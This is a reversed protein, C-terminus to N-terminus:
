ITLTHVLNKHVQVFNFPPLSGNGSRPTLYTHKSSLILRRLIFSIYKKAIYYYLSSNKKM